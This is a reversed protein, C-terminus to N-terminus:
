VLGETERQMHVRVLTKATDPALGYRNILGHFESDIQHVQHQVRYKPTSKGSDAFCDKAELGLAALIDGFECSAFCHLLIDGNSTEKLSLSPSRDAHAPCRASYGRSTKRVGQLKDLFLILKSMPLSEFFPGTRQYRGAKRRKHPLRLPRGNQM